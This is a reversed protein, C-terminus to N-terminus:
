VRPAEQSSPDRRKYIFTPKHSKNFAVNPSATPSASPAISSSTTPKRTKIFNFSPSAAPAASPEISSSTTPKRTKVFIFSPSTPRSKSPATSPSATPPVSAATSPSVTPTMSPAASHSATPTVSPASSPSAAPSASPAAGPSATPSVSPAASHSATPTVSPAASPSVAPSASPAAVPSATPSVSPAASPSATPSASPATSPSATISLSPAASPSATASVSPATSPSATISVSPAASPSATPSVSPATSPSAKPSVSPAASPAETPTVSPAQSISPSATPTDTPSATPSATPATTPSATPVSRVLLRIRFNGDAIYVNGSGDVAVGQPYNLHANTAVINDGNYYPSGTGAITTIVGTSMTVKRVRNSASDAIYVDGSGDLAIGSPNNLNASTAEINDGNYYPSGTGAITTITSMTVLRIRNNGTDVIYFNGSGDLAISQPGNLKASTAVLDDGNYGGTGTTGAITTIISTSVTVKRIRNNGTDAIYVNGPGDLAIGFPYHLQASTPYGNDGSYGFTGTGAITTIIGGIVTVKRIRHNFTDAIYVNGPGDLAIDSPGNLQASTALIGDPNYGGTGTGAITTIIGTSVTVKRVRHNDVDAFYIDGSGGTKIGYTFSVQAATAPINDGNYGGSGTGAVTVMFQDLGNILARESQDIPVKWINHLPDTTVAKM